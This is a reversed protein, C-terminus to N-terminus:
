FLVFQINLLAILSGQWTWYHFVYLCHLIFLGYTSRLYMERGLSKNRNYAFCSPVFHFVLFLMLLLFYKVLVLSLSGITWGGEDVSFCLSGCEKLIGISRWLLLRHIVRSIVLHWGKVILSGLTKISFHFFYTFFTKIIILSLLPYEFAGHQTIFMENFEPCSWYIHLMNLGNQYSLFWGCPTRPFFFM